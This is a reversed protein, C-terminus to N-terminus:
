LLHWPCPLSVRLHYPLGEELVTLIAALSARYRPHTVLLAVKMMRSHIVRVFKGTSEHEADAAGSGHIEATGENAAGGVFSDRRNLHGACPSHWAVRSPACNAENQFMSARRWSDKPEPVGDRETLRLPQEVVRAAGGNAVAGAFGISNAGM